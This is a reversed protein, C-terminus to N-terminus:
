CRRNFNTNESLAAPPAIDPFPSHSSTMLRFACSKTMRDSRGRTQHLALASTTRPGFLSYSYASQPRISHVGGNRLSGTFVSGRVDTKWADTLHRFAFTLPFIFVHSTVSPFAFTSKVLAWLSTILKGAITVRIALLFTISKKTVRPHLKRLQPM